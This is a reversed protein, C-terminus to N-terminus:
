FVEFTCEVLDGEPGRQFCRVEREGDLGVNLLVAVQWPKTLFRRHLDVDMGSLGFEDTAKFLHTHFWGVLKQGRFERDRRRNAKSWSDGTFLLLGPGGWASEVKIVDTIELGWRFNPNDEDEPSDPQRYPIGILYGGDEVGPNLYIEKHLKRYVEASMFVVNDKREGRGHTETNGFSELDREPLPKPKVKRFEIRERNKALEPLRFVGEVELAEPPFLERPATRVEDPSADVKYYFPGENMHMKGKEIWGRALYEAGALFIDDVNYDGQFIEEQFDLIRVTFYTIHADPHLTVRPPPEKEVEYPTSYLSTPGVPQPSRNVLKEPIYHPQIAYWPERVTQLREQLVENFLRNAFPAAVSVPVAFYGRVQFTQDYLTIIFSRIGRVRDNMM